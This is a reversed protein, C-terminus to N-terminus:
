EFVWEKLKLWNTRGEKKIEIINRKELRKITDSLSSKPIGTSKYVYAQTIEDEAKELMNVVIRESEDLVNLISEKVGKSKVASGGVSVDKVQKEKYDAVIAYDAAKSEGAVDHNVNYVLGNGSHDSVPDKSTIGM